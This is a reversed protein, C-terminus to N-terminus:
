HPSTSRRPSRGRRRRRWSRRCPTSVRPNADELAEISVVSSAAVMKATLTRNGFTGGADPFADGEGRWAATTGALYPLNVTQARMPFTRAGARLVRTANRARDLFNAVIASDVVCGGAPGSTILFSKREDDNM